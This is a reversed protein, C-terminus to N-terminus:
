RVTKRTGREDDREGTGLVSVDLWQLLLLNFTTAREAYVQAINKDKLEGVSQRPTEITTVASTFVSPVAAPRAIRKTPLAVPAAPAEPEVEAGMSTKISAIVEGVTKARTGDYFVHKNAAAARPLIDAAKVQSAAGLLKVAGAPGLFHATYLDSEDIARGLRSSLYNKNENALEGAMAASVQPDFRMAMIADRRAKGAVTLAGSATKEIQAAIDGLGHESGYKRLTGLWTQEVFQFLGAASSTKATANPDLSSERMAMKMLFEAGAGTAAGARGIAARVNQASSKAGMNIAALSSIESSM